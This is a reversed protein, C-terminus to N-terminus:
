KQQSRSPKLPEHPASKLVQYVQEEIDHAVEHARDLIDEGCSILAETERTAQETEVRLGDLNFASMAEEGGSYKRAPLTGVLPIETSKDLILSPSDV